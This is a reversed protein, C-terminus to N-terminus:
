RDLEAFRYRSNSNLEYHCGSNNYVFTQFKYNISHKGKIRMDTM